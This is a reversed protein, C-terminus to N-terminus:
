HAQVGDPSKAKRGRKVTPKVKPAELELDDGDLVLFGISTMPIAVLYGDDFRAHVFDGRLELSVKSGHKLRTQHRVEKADRNLHIESIAMIAETTNSEKLLLIRSLYNVEKQQRANQHTSL